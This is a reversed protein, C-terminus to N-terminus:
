PTHGNNIREGQILRFLEDKFYSINDVDHAESDMRVRWEAMAGFACHQLHELLANDSLGRVHPHNMNVVISLLGRAGIDVVVYEDQRLVDSSLYGMITLQHLRVTFDPSHARAVQLSKRITQERQEPSPLAQTTWDSGALHTSLQTQFKHAATTTKKPTPLRTRRTKAATILAECEAKLRTGLDEEEEGLWLIDDKTHSVEFDDLELEGTLRQNVLDNSGLPQGFIEPPRWSDPWGKVVRSSHLLTFGARSRSGPELVGAWGKVRKEGLRLAIPQLLEQGEANRAFGPVWDWKLVEGLFVLTLSGDTLDRRYM